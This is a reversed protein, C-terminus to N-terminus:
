LLIFKLIIKFSTNRKRNRAGQTIVKHSQSAHTKQVHETEDATTVLAHQVTFDNHKNVYGPM